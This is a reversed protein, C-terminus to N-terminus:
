RRRIHKGLIKGDEREQPCDAPEGEEAEEVFKHKNAKSPAKPAPDEHKEEEDRPNHKKINTAPKTKAPRFM